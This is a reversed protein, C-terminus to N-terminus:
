SLKPPPPLLPLLPCFYDLLLKRGTNLSSHTGWSSRSHIIYGGVEVVKARQVLVRDLMPVLSKISKISLSQLLLRWLVRYARLM